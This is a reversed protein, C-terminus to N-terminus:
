LKNVGQFNQTTHLTAFQEVDESSLNVGISELSKLLVERVQTEKWELETSTSPNYVIVRGSIVTYGFVPRIPRRYFTVKGFYQSEPYIQWSGDGIQECIPDTVSVSDIQSNLRDAREDENYVQLATHKTISRGSIAYRIEIDLLNLYNMNAPITVIGGISNSPTINYSARFPSLADKIRQSTSAKPQYDNYLAIQGDDLLQELEAVTYYGGLYKNIWLNLSDFCQQLNM